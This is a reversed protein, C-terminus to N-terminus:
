GVMAELEQLEKNWKELGAANSEPRGEGKKEKAKYAAIIGKAQKIALQVANTNLSFGLNATAVTAVTTQPETAVTTVTSKPESLTKETATPQEGNAAAQHEAFETFSRYNYYELFFFAVLLLLDFCLTFVAFYGSRVTTKESHSKTTQDNAATIRNVNEIMNGELKGIQATVSNYAKAGQPTLTGKWSMSRKIEKRQRNLEKIREKADGKTPEVDTLKAEPTFILVTDHAGYYSLGISLTTLALSAAILFLRIKRFQLFEKIAKPVTLRKIVEIISLFILSLASTLLTNQVMSLLFVYVGIFSTAIAFFHIFYTAYHVVQRLTAYQEFFPKIRFYETLEQALHSNKFAEYSENFESSTKFSLKQMGKCISNNSHYNKLM